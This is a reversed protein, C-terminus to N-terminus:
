YCCFSLCPIKKTNPSWTKYPETTKNNSNKVGKVKPPRLKRMELKNKIIKQAEFAGLLLELKQKLV